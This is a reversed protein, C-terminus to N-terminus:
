NEHKIINVENKNKILFANADDTDIHFEKTGPRVLVNNLIGGKEGNVLVSVIDGPKLGYENNEEIHIHRNAIIVGETITIQGIPGIITISESEKIDGSTRVPPNIGLKISDTKSIEVQTYKRTPGLVRVGEIFSKKTKLTVKSNSAFEGKQNLEKFKELKFDKGFLQELNETTLHLHRASIGVNINMM